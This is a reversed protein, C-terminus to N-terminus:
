VSHTPTSSSHLHSLKDEFFSLNVEEREGSVRLVVLSPENLIV